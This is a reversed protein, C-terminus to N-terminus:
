RQARPLSKLYAIVARADERKLHYTHMPPRLPEGNPGTGKELVIEIQQDTMSPLGALPPTQDAWNQIPAVPQIWIPAGELWVESKLNGDADRPTHCESCRAVEEVLYKGRSIEAPSTQADVFLSSLSCAISILTLIFVSLYLQLRNMLFDGPVLPRPFKAKSPLILIALVGNGSFRCFLTTLPAPSRCFADLTSFLPM